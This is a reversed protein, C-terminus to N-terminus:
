VLRRERSSSAFVDQGPLGDFFWSIPLDLARSIRALAISGIRVKGEEMAAITEVDGDIIKAVEAHSRGCETRAEYIRRGLHRDIESGSLTEGM